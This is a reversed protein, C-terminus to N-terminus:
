KKPDSEPPWLDPRLDSKLVKFDLIKEIRITLQPGPIMKKNALCIMYNSSIGIAAAMKRYTTEEIFRYTRLDM